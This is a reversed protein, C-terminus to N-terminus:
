SGHSTYAIIRELCLCCISCVQQAELLAVRFEEGPQVGLADGVQSLMWSYAVFLLPVKGARWLKFLEGPAQVQSYLFHSRGKISCKIHVMNPLLQLVKRVEQATMTLIGRREVCLELFVVQV